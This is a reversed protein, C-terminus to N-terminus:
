HGSAFGQSSVELDTCFKVTGGQPGYICYGGPKTWSHHFATCNTKVGKEGAISTDNWCGHVYSAPTGLCLFNEETPFQGLQSM